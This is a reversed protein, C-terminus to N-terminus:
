SPLIIGRSRPGAKSAIQHIKKRKTEAVKRPLKSLQEEVVDTIIKLAKQFSVKRLKTM